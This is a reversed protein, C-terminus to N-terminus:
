RSQSSARSVVESVKAGVAAALFVAALSLSYNAGILHKEIELFGDALVLAYQAAGWLAFMIGMWTLPGIRRFMAVALAAGGVGIVLLNLHLSYLSSWLQFLPAYAFNPGSEPMLGNRSVDIKTGAQLTRWIMRPGLTPFQFLVRATDLYSARAGAVCAPGTSSSATHGICETLVPKDGIAVLSIGDQRKLTDLAGVYLANYQNVGKNPGYIAPLAAVVTLAVAIVVSRRWGFASSIFPVVFLPLLFYATKSMAVFLAVVVAWIAYRRGLASRYLYVLAALVPFAIIMVQEEFFSNLFAVFGSSLIVPTAVVLYAWAAGAGARKRISFFLFTFAAAYLARGPISGAVVSYAAASGTLAISWALQVFMWLKQTSFSYPHMVNSLHPYIQWRDIWVFFFRRHWEPSTVDPVNASWGYPKEILFSFARSFDGNDAIGTFLHLAFASWLISFYAFAVRNSGAARSLVTLM